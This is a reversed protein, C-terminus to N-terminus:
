FLSFLSDSFLDVCSPLFRSLAIKHYGSSKMSSILMLNLAVLVDFLPSPIISSKVNHQNNSLTKGPPETTEQWASCALKIGPDPLYGSSPFPLGNCYEQRPFGMSLPAQCAITCPTAFSNASCSFLLLLNYNNNNIKSSM